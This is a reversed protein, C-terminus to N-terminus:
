KKRNFVQYRTETLVADLRVDWPDHPLKNVRQLEFAIGILLPRKEQPLTQCFAFARDYFGAGNGLRVGDHDFAVLPVFVVDLHQTDIRPASPLPELIAFRNQKLADNNQYRHFTMNQSNPDSDIVPLYCHKNESLLTKLIHHPSLEHLMPWYLAFHQYRQLLGTDLFLRFIAEAAWQRISEEMARLDKRIKQRIEPKTSLNMLTTCVISLISLTEDPQRRFRTNLHPVQRRNLHRALALM